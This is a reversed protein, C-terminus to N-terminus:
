GSEYHHPLRSCDCKMIDPTLYYDFKGGFVIHKLEAYTLRDYHMLEESTLFALSVISM